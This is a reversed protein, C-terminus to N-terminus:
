ECTKETEISCHIANFPVLNQSTHVAVDSEGSLKTLLTSCYSLSSEVTMKSFYKSLRHVYVFGHSEGNPWVNKNIQQQNWHGCNHSM